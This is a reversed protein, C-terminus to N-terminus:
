RRSRRASARTTPRIHASAMTASRTLIREKEPTDLPPFVTRVADSIRAQIDVPGAQRMLVPMKMEINYDVGSRRRINANMAQFMALPMHEQENTEHVHIMANVANRSVECAIVLGGDRTVRIMETLARRPEPLHMLVTHAIAIDFEGDAFPAANV